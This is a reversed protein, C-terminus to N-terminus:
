YYSQKKAWLLAAYIAKSYLRIEEKTYLFSVRFAVNRAEIMLESNTKMMKANNMHKHYILKGGFTLNPLNVSGIYWEANMVIM